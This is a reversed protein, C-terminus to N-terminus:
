WASVDAIQRDDLGAAVVSMMEHHRERDRQATLQHILCPEPEGGINRAIPLKSVGDIGHCTRFQCAPKQGAERDGVRRAIAVQAAFVGLVILLLPKM